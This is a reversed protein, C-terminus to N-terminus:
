KTDEMARVLCVARLRIAPLSGRLCNTLAPAIVVCECVCLVCNVKTQKMVIDILLQDVCEYSKPQQKESLLRHWEYAERGVNTPTHPSNVRTIQQEHECAVFAERGSTGLAVGLFLLNRYTM